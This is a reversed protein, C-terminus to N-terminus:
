GARSARTSKSDDPMTGFVHDWFQSSVGFASTDGAYHHLNHHKWLARLFNRPPKYAHISYHVLLYIAYGAMFGGGFSFGLDGLALKFLGIFLVAVAVSMVPPMALRSKDRPHEHHIGHFVHQIRAKRPTDAPMHYFFRHVAYEVLTFFILGTLFLPAVTKGQLGLGTISYWLSAVATAFFLVLPIAIHTRTFAELVPNRFLRGSESTNPSSM